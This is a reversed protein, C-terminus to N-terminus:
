KKRVIQSSNPIQKWTLQFCFFQGNWAFVIKELKGLFFVKNENFIHLSYYIILIIDHEYSKQIQFYKFWLNLCCTSEHFLRSKSIKKYIDLCNNYMSKFNGAKFLSLAIHNHLKRINIYMKFFQRFYESFSIAKYLNKCKWYWNWTVLFM